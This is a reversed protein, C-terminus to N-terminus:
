KNEDSSSGGYCEHRRQILRSDDLGLVNPFSLINRRKSKLRTPPRKRCIVPDGDSSSKSLSGCDTNSMSDMYSSLYGDPSFEDEEIDKHEWFTPHCRTDKELSSNNDGLLSSAPSSRSILGPSSKAHVMQNQLERSSRTSNDSSQSFSNCSNTVYDKNPTKCSSRNNIVLDKCPTRSHNELLASSANSLTEKSSTRTSGVEKCSSRSASRLQQPNPTSEKCGARTHPQIICTSM